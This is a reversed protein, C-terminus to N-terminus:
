KRYIKVFGGHESTIRMEKNNEICLPNEQKTTETINIHNATWFKFGSCACRGPYLYVNGNGTRKFESLLNKNLGIGDDNYDVFCVKEIKDPLTIKFAKDGGASNWVDDVSIKLEDKFLGENAQDSFACDCGPNWFIKIAIWATIIFFIILFISFIVSYPMGFLQAKNKM